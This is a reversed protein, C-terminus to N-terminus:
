RRTTCACFSLVKSGNRQRHLASWTTASCWPPGRWRVSIPFIIGRALAGAILVALLLGALAAAGSWFVTKRAADEARQAQAILAQATRDEVLRIQDIKWTMVDIWRATTNQTAEQRALVRQFVFGRLREIEAAKEDALVRDLQQVQELAAFFRFQELFNAQRDAQAVFVQRDIADVRPASFYTVGLAREVGAAEKAQMLNVLAYISRSIDADSGLFYM